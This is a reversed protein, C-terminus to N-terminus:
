PLSCAGTMVGTGKDNRSSGKDNRSSGKDNRSSGKDNRSSGKDNRGSGKDNRGFPSIEFPRDGKCIDVSLPYGDFQM